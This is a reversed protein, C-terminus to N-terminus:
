RRVGVFPEMTASNESSIGERRLVNLLTAFIIKLDGSPTINDVYRVDLAFKEEWSLLNRGNIQALGSLGPRVKHRKKQVDSYLPLYDPLLPRPGILSMDGKLINFFEPLEDISTGRLFRGFRTLRQEDPLLRGHSDTENTMTRFKYIKFLKENKGPREQSFIVPGGLFVRVLLAALLMVPSLALLAALSITVDFFRKFFSCYANKTKETV